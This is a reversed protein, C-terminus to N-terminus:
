LHLEAAIMAAQQSVRYVQHASCLQSRCAIALPNQHLIHASAPNAWARLQEISFFLSSCLM